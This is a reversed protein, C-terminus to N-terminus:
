VSLLKYIKEFKSGNIHHNIAFRTDYAAKRIKPIVSNTPNYTGTASTISLIDTLTLSEAHKSRRKLSM